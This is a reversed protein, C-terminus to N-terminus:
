RACRTWRSSCRGAPRPASTGASAGWCRGAGPLCRRKLVALAVLTLAALQLGRHPRRWHSLFVPLASMLFFTALVDSRSNMWSVAEPHAAHLGFVAAAFASAGPSAISRALLFVLAANALHFMVGVSHWWAPDASGRWGQVAFLFRTLPRFAVNADGQTLTGALLEGRLARVVIVYDDSLFPFWLSRWYCALTAFLVLGLATM